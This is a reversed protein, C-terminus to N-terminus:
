STPVSSSATSTIPTLTLIPSRSAHPAARWQRAHSRPAVPLMPRPDFPSPILSTEGFLASEGGYARAAGNRAGFGANKMDENCNHRTWFLTDPKEDRGSM